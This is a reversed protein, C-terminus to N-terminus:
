GVYGASLRAAVCQLHRTGSRRSRSCASVWSFFLVTGEVLLEEAHVQCDLAAIMKHSPAGKM